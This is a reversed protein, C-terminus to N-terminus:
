GSFNFGLSVRSALVQLNGGLYSISLPVKSWPLRIDLLIHLPSSQLSADMCTKKMNNQEINTVYIGHM